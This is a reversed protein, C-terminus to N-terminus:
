GEGETEKTTVNTDSGDTYKKKLEAIKMFMENLSFGVAERFHYPLTPSSYTVRENYYTFFAREIEEFIERAVETSKRYGATYFRKAYMMAKCEFSTMCENCTRDLHCVNKAMEEIQKDRNM